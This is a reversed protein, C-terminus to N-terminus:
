NGCRAKAKPTKATSTSSACRACNPRRATLEPNRLLLQSPDNSGILTNAAVFKTELNPLARVGLNPAAPNIKQDV